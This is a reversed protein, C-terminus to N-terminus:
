VGAVAQGALLLPVLSLSHATVPSGTADRMVDANGHDATIALLAGPGGAAVSAADARCCRMRWGASAGTSSSAPRSPRRGCGPTGSWTRTPSTPWSSTTAHRWRDGGRACGHRAAASMDPELDYTAVRPSPVLLRDEGPWAAEVGGNLFYTVHAYKETEAVHFQRWGQGSVIEALSTVVEPPFAVARGAAGGRVRDHTVVHLDRPRRGRTSARSTTAMSWRMRWSAHGTPGSTATSSWMATGCPRGPAADRTPVVFEDNEGRAYAASLADSVTLAM